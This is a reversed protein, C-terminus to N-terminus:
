LGFRPPFQSMWILPPNLIKDRQGYRNEVQSEASPQYVDGTGEFGNVKTVSPYVPSYYDKGILIWANKFRGLTTRCKICACVVEEM